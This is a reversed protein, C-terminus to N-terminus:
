PKIRGSNDYMNGTHLSAVQPFEKHSKRNAAIRIRTPVPRHAYEAVAVSLRAAENVALIELARRMTGSVDNPAPRYRDSQGNIVQASVPPAEIRRVQLSDSRPLVDQPAVSQGGLVLPSTPASVAVREVLRVRTPVPVAAVHFPSTQNAMSLAPSLGVSAPACLLAALALATHSDLRIGLDQGLKSFWSM